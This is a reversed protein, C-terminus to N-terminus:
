YSGIDHREGKRRPNADIWEHLERYGSGTEKRSIEAHQKITPM